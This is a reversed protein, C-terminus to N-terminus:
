LVEAATLHSGVSYRPYSYRVLYYRGLSRYPLFLPGSDCRDPRDKRKGDEVHGKIAKTEGGDLERGNSLWSFSPSKRGGSRLKKM